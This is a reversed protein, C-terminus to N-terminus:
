CLLCHCEITPYGINRSFTVREQESECFPKSGPNGLERSGGIFSLLAGEGCSLSHCVFCGGLELGHGLVTVQFHEVSIPNGFNMKMTEEKRHSQRFVLVHSTMSLSDLPCSAM